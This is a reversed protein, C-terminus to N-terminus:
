SNVHLHGGGFAKKVPSLSAKLLVMSEQVHSIFSSYSFRFFVQVINSILLHFSSYKLAGYSSQKLNSDAMTCVCLQLPVTRQSWLQQM